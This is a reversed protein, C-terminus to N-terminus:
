LCAPICAVTCTPLACTPCGAAHTPPHMRAGMSCRVMPGTISLTNLKATRGLEGVLTWMYDLAPRAVEKLLVRRATTADTCVVVPRGGLWFQLCCM